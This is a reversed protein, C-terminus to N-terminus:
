SIALSMTDRLDLAFVPRWLTPAHSTSSELVLRALEELLAYGFGDMLPYDDNEDKSSGSLWWAQHSWFAAVLQRHTELEEAPIARDAQNRFLWAFASNLFHTDLSGSLRQGPEVSFLRGDLAYRRRWRRFELREVRQATALPNISSM